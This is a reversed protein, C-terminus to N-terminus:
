TGPCLAAAHLSKEQHLLPILCIVAPYRVPLQVIGDPCHIPYEVPIPHSISTDKYYKAMLVFYIWVTMFTFLSQKSLQKFQHWIRKSPLKNSGIVFLPRYEYSITCTHLPITYGNPLIVQSHLQM